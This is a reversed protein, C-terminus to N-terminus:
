SDDAMRSSIKRGMKKRSKGIRYSAIHYEYPSSYKQDSFYILTLLRPQDFAFMQETRNPQLNGTM